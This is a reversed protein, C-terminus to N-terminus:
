WRASGGWVQLFLDDAHLNQSTQEPWRPARQEMGPRLHSTTELTAAGNGAVIGRPSWLGDPM